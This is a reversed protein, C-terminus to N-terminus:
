RLRAPAGPRRGVQFYQEFVEKMKHLCVLIAAVNSNRRTIALVAFSVRCLSSEACM